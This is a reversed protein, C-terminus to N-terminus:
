SVVFLHKNCQNIAYEVGELDVFDLGKSRAAHDILAEACGFKNFRVLNGDRQADPLQSDINFYNQLDANARTLARIVAAKDKCDIEIIEHRGGSKVSQKVGDKCQLIYAKTKPEAKAEAAQTAPEIDKATLVGNTYTFRSSDSKGAKQQAGQDGCAAINLMGFLIFLNIIKM